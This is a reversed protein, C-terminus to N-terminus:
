MTATCPAVDQSVVALQERPKTGTAWGFRPNSKQLPYLARNVSLSFPRTMRRNTVGSIARKLADNTLVVKEDIQVRKAIREATFHAEIM